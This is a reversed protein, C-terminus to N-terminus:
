RSEQHDPSADGHDRQIALARQYLENRREGTIRAALAVSQSLPLEELLARLVRDDVSRDRATTSAGAVVLVFEGRVNNPDARLWAAAAALPLRRISEFLKTLERAILVEREGGLLSALDDIAKIVRHPAEYFVMTYAVDRLGEIAKRRATKREPLFGIFLFPGEFGAASLATAAANPGPIPVVRVQAQHAARVLRAGPDSIAPTGADCVLALNQGDRLQSLLAAIQKAENHEHLARTPVNLGCHALLRRTVRTDEALVLDVAGLTARARESLDALNGIPTAVVYLTGAATSGTM